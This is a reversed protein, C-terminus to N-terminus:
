ISHEKVIQKWNPMYTNLLKKFESGHNPVLIHCLEHLVVYEIFKLNKRILELNLCIDHNKTHCYGWKGRLKKICLSNKSIGLAKEWKEFFEQTISILEQEFHKELYRQRTKYPVAEHLFFDFYDDNILVKVDRSDHHLHRFNYYSGLYQFKNPENKHYKNKAKQIWDLKAELFRNIEESTIRLPVSLTVTQDEKVKLIINRIKKYCVRIEINQYTINHEKTKKLNLKM